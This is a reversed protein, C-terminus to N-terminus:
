QQPGGGSSSRSEVDLGVAVAPGDEARAVYLLTRADLPALFNVPANQHTLQEPLKGSPQVRWVEMEGFPDTGHVFYIWQGDPSWAPNHTHM